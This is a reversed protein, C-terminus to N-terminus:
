LYAVPYDATSDEDGGDEEHFYWFFSDKDVYLYPNSVATAYTNSNTLLQQWEEEDVERVVGATEDDLEDLADFGLVSEFEEDSLAIISADAVGVHATPDGVSNILRLVEAHLEEVRERCHEINIVSVACGAKILSILIRM